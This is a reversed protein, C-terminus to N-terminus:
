GVVNFPLGINLQDKHSLGSGGSSRGILGLGLGLSRTLGNNQRHVSWSADVSQLKDLGGLELAWQVDSTVKLGQKLRM